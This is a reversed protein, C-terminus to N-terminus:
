ATILRSLSETENYGRTYGELWREDLGPSVCGPTSRDFPKQDLKDQRGKARGTNYATDWYPSM